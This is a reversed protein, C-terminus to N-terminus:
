SVTEIEVSTISPAHLELAERMLDRLDNPAIVCHACEPNSGAKYRVRLTNGEVAVLAVAGGESEVMRNFHEVVFQAGQSV